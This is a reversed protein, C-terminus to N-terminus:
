YYVQYYLLSLWKISWSTRPMAEVVWCTLMHEESTDPTDQIYTSQTNYLTKQNAHEHTESASEM